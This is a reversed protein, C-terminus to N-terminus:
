ALQKGLSKNSVKFPLQNIGEVYHWKERPCMRGNILRIDSGEWEVRCKLHASSNQYLVSSLSSGQIEATM